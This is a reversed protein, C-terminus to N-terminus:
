GTGGASSGRRRRSDRLRRRASRRRQGAAGHQLRIVPAPVERLDREPREDVDRRAVRLEREVSCASALAFHKMEALTLKGTRWSGRM